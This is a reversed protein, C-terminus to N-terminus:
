HMLGRLLIAVHADRGRYNRLYDFLDANAGEFLITALQHWPGERTLGPADGSGYEALLEYALHTAIQKATSRRRSGSRVPIRDALEQYIERQSRVQDMFSPSPDAMSIYPDLNHGSIEVARLKEAYKRFRKKLAAPSTFKDCAKAIRVHLVARDIASRCQARRESAPEILKLAKSCDKNPRFKRIADEAEQAWIPAKSRQDRSM